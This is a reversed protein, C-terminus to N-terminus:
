NTSDSVINERIRHLQRRSINLYTVMNGTYALENLIKFGIM